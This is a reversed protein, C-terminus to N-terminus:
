EKIYKNLMDKLYDQYTSGATKNRRNFEDRTMVGANVGKSKLAYTVDDYTLEYREDSNPTPQEYDKPIPTDGQEYEKPIPTYVQKSDSGNGGASLNVGYKAEYAAKAEKMQQDFEEQARKNQQQFQYNEMAVNAFDMGIGAATTGFDTLSGAIMQGGAMFNAAANNKDQQAYGYEMAWPQYENYLWANWEEDSLMAAQQFAMNVKDTYPQYETTYWKNLDDQRLSRAAEFQNALEQGEYQYRQFAQQQLEPIVDNLGSLYEQYAQSGASAAYSNGYGGSLAAVDAVTDQMALKGERIYQDRYNQYTPDQTFDYSFDERNLLADLRGEVLEKYQDQYEPPSNKLTEIEDFLSQLEPSRKYEPVEEMLRKIEKQAKVYQGASILSTVLGVGTGVAAGIGAAGLGFAGAAGAALVSANGGNLLDLSGLVDSSGVANVVKSVGQITNGVVDAAKSFTGSGGTNSGSQGKDYTYSSGISTNSGGSKLQGVTGGQTNAQQGSNSKSGTMTEDDRIKFLGAM